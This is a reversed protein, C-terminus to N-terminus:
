NVGVWYAFANTASNSAVTLSTPITTTNGTTNVAFPFKAATNGFTTLSGMFQPGTTAAGQGTFCSLVPLTTGANFSFAAWYNGGGAPVTYAATLPAQIPGTNTGIATTLDATIGVRAGAFTYLGGFNQGSTAGSAATAIRFWLNTVVTGGQLVLKALYLTGGTTVGGGTQQGQVYPFDWALLGASSPTMAENFDNAPAAGMSIAGNAAFSGNVTVTSGPDATFTSGARMEVTADEWVNSLELRTGFPATFGADADPM